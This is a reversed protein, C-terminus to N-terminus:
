VIIKNSVIVGVKGTNLPGGDQSTREAKLFRGIWLEIWVTYYSSRSMIIEICINNPTFLYEKYKGKFSTTQYGQECTNIYTYM